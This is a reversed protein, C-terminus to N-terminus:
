ARWVSFRAEVRRVISNFLVGFLGLLVVLFLLNGTQFTAAALNILYGVGASGAVLDAVVVGVIAHGGGLRIGTLIYPLAGPIVVSTLRKLRSARYVSAVRLYHSQAAHVGALTNIAVPFLGFLFVVIIKSTLGIGVGVVIMPTLAVMPTAYLVMLWPGVCYEIRKESGALLGVLVGVVAALSMGILFEEVSARVSSWLQATALSGRAAEYISRPSGSIFEDIVGASTLAQWATLLVAVGACNLGLRLVRSESNAAALQRAAGLNM